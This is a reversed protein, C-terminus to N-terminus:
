QRLRTDHMLCPINVRDPDGLVVEWKLYKVDTGKPNSCSTWIEYNPFDKQRICTSKSRMLFM